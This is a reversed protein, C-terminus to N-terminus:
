SARRYGWIVVAYRVMEAVIIMKLAANVLTWGNFIFPMIIGVMIMGALLVGYGAVYSRRGITNDREDPRGRDDRPTRARLVLTGAGLITLQALCTIGYLALLQLNPTDPLPMRWAVYGFYPGFTLVMAVLSLWATKERYPM